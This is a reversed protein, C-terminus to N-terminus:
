DGIFMYGMNRITKIFSPRNPDDNLKKRIKGILVDISRDFPTWERDAVSDLIQDRSLVKNPHTALVSLVQFEYTTLAVEEGDPALLKFGTLNLTWEGFRVTNKEQKQTGAPPKPAGQSRRLVTRVRASLERPHFPKTMYDDAGVELGVVKDVVDDRGTLMIIPLSSESRISRALSFGDEDPLMLDLIVLDISRNALSERMQAGNGAEESRFGERALAKCIMRRMDPDDDVVLITENSTM